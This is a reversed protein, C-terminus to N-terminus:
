QLSFVEILVSAVELLDDESPIELVGVVFIEIHFIVEDLHLFAVMEQQEVVVLGKGCRAEEVELELRGLRGVLM